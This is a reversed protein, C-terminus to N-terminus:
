WRSRFNAYFYYFVSNADLTKGCSRRRRRRTRNQARSFESNRTTFAYSFPRRGHRRRLGSFTPLFATWSAVMGGCTIKPGYDGSKLFSTFPKTIIWAYLSFSHMPDSGTRTRDVLGLPWLTSLWPLLLINDPPLAWGICCELRWALGQALLCLGNLFVFIVM